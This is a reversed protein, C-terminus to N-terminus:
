VDAERISITKLPSSISELEEFGEDQYIFELCELMVKIEKM